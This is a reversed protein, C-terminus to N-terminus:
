LQRKCFQERTQAERIQTDHGSKGRSLTDKIKDLAGRIAAKSSNNRESEVRESASDFVKQVLVRYQICQQTIELRRQVERRASALENEAQKKKDELSGKDEPRAQSIASELNRIKELFSDSRLGSEDCSQSGRGECWQKVDSQHSVCQERWNAYPIAMCGESNMAATYEEVTQAISDQAIVLTGVLILASSM